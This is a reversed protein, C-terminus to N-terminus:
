SFHESNFTEKPKDTEQICVFFFPLHAVITAESFKSQLTFIFFKM